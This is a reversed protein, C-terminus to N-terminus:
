QYFVEEATHIQGNEDLQWSIIDDFFAAWRKQIDSKSTVALATEWDPDVKTYGYIMTGRRFLSYDHFGAENLLETMEPLINDHLREYEDEMGPKLEFVFCVREM